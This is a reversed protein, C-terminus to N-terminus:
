LALAVIDAIQIIRSQIVCGPPTRRVVELMARGVQETTVIQKPFSARLPTRSMDSKEHGGNGRSNPNPPRVKM